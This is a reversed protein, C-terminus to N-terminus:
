KLMILQFKSGVAALIVGNLEDGVRLAAGVHPVSVCRLVGSNDTKDNARYLEDSDSAPVGEMQDVDFSGASSGSAIIGNGLIVLGGM